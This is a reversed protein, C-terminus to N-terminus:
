MRDVDVLTIDEDPVTITRTTAITLGSLDFSLEKTTDTNDQLKFNNTERSKFLQQLSRLPSLVKDNVATGTDQNEAETQTAIEGTVAVWNTTNVDPTDDTNTGTTNKYLNGEYSVIDNEAYSGGDTDSQWISVALDSIRQWKTADFAEPTTIEAINKYIGDPRSILQGLLYTKTANYDKAGMRTAYELYSPSRLDSLKLAQSTPTLGGMTIVGIILWAALKKM